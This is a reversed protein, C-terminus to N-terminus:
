REKERRSKRWHKDLNTTHKYWQDISRPSRETEMLKRRIVGNIERKFEEVLARREYGSGRAVRRFEQVFEEM